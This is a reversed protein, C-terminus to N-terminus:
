GAQVVRTYGIERERSGGPVRDPRSGPLLGSRGLLSDHFCAQEEKQSSDGERQERHCRVQKRLVPLRSRSHPAHKGLRCAQVRHLM